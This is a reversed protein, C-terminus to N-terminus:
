ASTSTTTSAINKKQRNDPGLNGGKVAAADKVPLDADLIPPAKDSKVKTTSNKTRGKKGM